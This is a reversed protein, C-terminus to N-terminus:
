IDEMVHNIMGFMLCFLGLSGLVFSYIDLNSNKEECTQGIIKNNYRDFCDVKRIDIETEYILAIVLGSIIMLIGLVVLILNMLKM